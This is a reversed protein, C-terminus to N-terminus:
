SAPLDPNPRDYRGPIYPFKKEIDPIVELGFGPKNPVDMYGRNAVLPEKFVGEQLYNLTKNHELMLRNPIAATLSAAQMLTLGGHWCHPCCVKHKLQALHAISWAETISALNCDPQVVDFAGRDIWEKFAFRTTKTEGGSMMVHPMMSRLKLFNDIAQPGSEPVGELWLFRLEELVPALQLYEEMSLQENTEQILDFEPGVAARLKRLLSIFDLVTKGQAKWDPGPRLKYATYGAEKLRVAEDILNEPRKYFAWENGNSAYLRLHPSPQNDTALLRYVPLGKAKGIIDWLAADIGSFVHAGRFSTPSWTCALLEVDFPNQGLIAPKAYEEAFKKMEVPGTYPSAEGIGVIGQDTFVQVLVADSKWTITRPNYWQREKPIEASLLTVKLDTIKINERVVGDLPHCRVELNTAKSATPKEAAGLLRAGAVMPVSGLLSRRSIRRMIM